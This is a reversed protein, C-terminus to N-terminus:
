ENSWGAQLLLSWVRTLPLGEITTPDDGRTAEFLRIGAAEIRYSGACGFPEDEDVYNEIARRSLPRMVMEFSAEARALHGDPHRLCIATILRHSRGQLARLQEVAGARDGPKHFIRTDIAIVQDSGLIYTDDLAARSEKEPVRQAKAAALRRALELPPEGPQPTEDVDPDFTDFQVPLRALLRRKYPSASALLLRQPPNM